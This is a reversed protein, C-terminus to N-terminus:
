SGDKSKLRNEFHQTKRGASLNALEAFSRERDEPHLLWEATKGVLDDPSWGLTARWAPNINLILGIPATEYILQLEPSNTLPQVPDHGMITAQIQNHRGREYQM